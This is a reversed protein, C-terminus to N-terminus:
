TSPRLGNVLMDFTLELNEFMSYSMDKILWRIVMHEITGLFISRAVYPNLDKRFEGADRGEEFITLLRGYLIRVNKYVVTDVVSRNGKLFLFVASAILPEKEIYRLYWWLYKRLQNVSGKIGFLQEELEEIAESAWANPITLFLDEKSEFYEYVTADSLGALSTIQSITAKQYGHEALVKTAAKLIKTRTDETSPKNVL